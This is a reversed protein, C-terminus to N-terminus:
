IFMEVEIIQHAHEKLYAESVYLGSADLEVKSGDLIAFSGQETLSSSSSAQHRTNTVIMQLKHGRVSMTVTLSEFPLDSAPQLTFGNYDPIYGLVYRLLTKLLVNSSGTQWDSMSEGDIFLDSNEGYSNPMVFPSCSVHAHTIPLVKFLEKWASKSEGLKFLSMVGFLSAHIYAAGNEATGAPLNPIRGVGETNPEFHPAFTKLGYKSGLRDYAKLISSKIEQKETPEHTEWLGSLVWFAQTTLGDRSAGDPDHFSGVYYSQEDGWGHVLKLEQDQRLIAHQRLGEGIEGKIASYTSTLDALSLKNHTLQDHHNLVWENELLELMESLNQYVQLTAMVSVGTGYTKSPDKSRGLGDLADNWDGYLALVCKTVPDRNVLLYDMIALMHEFVTGRTTDQCALHRHEDIFKYYGTMELLFDFDHTHKLYTVITTIVWVGQDIFPRLDMSHTAGPSPPLIYQRPCRGEKTIFNLAELMKDRAIDPEYYVLAELAQFVDRIGILSFSSLQIYGKIVSCFEVQKKVVEIFPNLVPAKDFAFTLNSLQLDQEQKISDAINDIIDGDFGKCHIADLTGQDFAYSFRTDIRLSDTLEFDLLYAAIATETFTCVPQHIGFTGDYLARPTHLSSRAGGVFRYRSTTIEHKKLQTITSKSPHLEFLGLNPAMKSRDVEEYAEFIFHGLSDDEHYTARRFWRDVSNEVIANKIFPNIYYALTFAIPQHSLDNNNTGNNLTSDKESRQPMHDTLQSAHLSFYLHNDADVTVRIVFQVGHTMCFYYTAGTTFITYRFADSANETAIVPVSLLPVIQTSQESDKFTAFFAIKPEGGENARLFPSFLGDNCHMYGSAYTWFNFGKQGYPYRSDGDDRPFSLISGDELFYSEGPMQCTAAFAPDSLIKQVNSQYKKIIQEM